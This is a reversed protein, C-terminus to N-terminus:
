CCCAPPTSGSRCQPSHHIGPRRQGATARPACAGGSCAPAAAAAAACCVQRQRRAKTQVTPDIGCCSFSSCHCGASPVCGRQLMRAGTNESTRWKGASRPSTRGPRWGRRTQHRRSQRYRQTHGGPAAPTDSVAVWPHLIPQPPAWLLRAWRRPLLQPRRPHRSSEGPLQAASECGSSAEQQAQQTQQSGATGATRATGQLLTDHVGLGAVHLAEHLLHPPRTSAPRHRCSRTQEAAPCPTGWRHRGRKGHRQCASCRVHGTHRTKQRRTRRWVRLAAGGAAAGCISM